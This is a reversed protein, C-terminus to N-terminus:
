ADAGPPEADVNTEVFHEVAARMEGVPRGTAVSRTQVGNLASVVFDAAADVDLDARFAGSEVGDALIQAVHARLADDFDVIRERVADDYPCQAKMELVATKFERDPGNETAGLFVDLTEMLRERPTEGSVADLRDTFSALLEELFSVLLDHKSDYHYHLAAKSKSSEAAIDAMTVDAYGHECLARYTADVIDDTPSDDPM